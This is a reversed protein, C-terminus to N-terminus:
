QRAIGGPPAEEPKPKWCCDWTVGKRQGDSGGGEEEAAVVDAAEEVASGTAEEEAPAAM